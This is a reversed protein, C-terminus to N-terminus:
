DGGRAAAVEYSKDSLDGLPNLSLMENAAAGKAGGWNLQKQDGWNVSEFLKASPCNGSDKSLDALSEHKEPIAAPKPEDHFDRAAAEDQGSKQKPVDKDGIDSM